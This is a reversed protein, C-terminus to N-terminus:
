LSCHQSLIRVAIKQVFNTYHVFHFGTYLATRIMYQYLQLNKNDMKCM